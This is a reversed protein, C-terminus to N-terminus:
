SLEKDEVRWRFEIKAWMAMTALLGFLIFLHTTIELMREAVVTSKAQRPQLEPSESTVVIKYHSSSSSFLHREAFFPVASAFLEFSSQWV